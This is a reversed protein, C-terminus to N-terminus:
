AGQRAQRMHLRHFLHTFTAAGLVPVLLNLVPVSLPIAMLVGAAWITPLHRRRLQNAGSRGVRRMAALTFYERGLLFGNLGWFILPAFPILTLYLLLAVLNALVLTGLFGLTDRLGDSLSVQQAPGLDPYHRDEVAQAVDDLFLSTIASAVPVMLFVSLVMMLPLAAWSLANDLWTITGIWPLTVADGVLWGVGKIVVAGFALLIALALGIGRLLVRQFRRDGMQGLAAMMAGPIM